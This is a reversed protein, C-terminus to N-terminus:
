REPTMQVSLPGALALELDFSGGVSAVRRSQDGLRVAAAKAVTGGFASDAVVLKAPGTGNLRLRLGDGACREVWANVPTRTELRVPLRGLAASEGAGLAVETRAGVADVTTLFGHPVPYGRADFRWAQHLDTSEPWGYVGSRMTVLRERGVVVGSRVEQVTIPYMQQPLSPYTLTGEGYYFYLNGWDLKRLVDAYVDAESGIGAPNGMTIPTQALHVDPGETIEKDVLIPLRGM